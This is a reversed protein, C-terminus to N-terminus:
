RSITLSEMYHVGQRSQLSLVIYNLPTSIAQAYEAVVIVCRITSAYAVIDMNDIKGFRMKRSDLVKIM